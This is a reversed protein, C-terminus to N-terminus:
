CGGGPRDLCELGGQTCTTYCFNGCDDYLYNRKRNPGGCCTPCQYHRVKCRGCAAKADLGPVLKALLADGIADLLKM